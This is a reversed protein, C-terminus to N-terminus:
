PFRALPELISVQKEIAILQEYRTRPGKPREAFSSHHQVGGCRSRPPVRASLRIWDSKNKDGFEGPQIRCFTLTCVLLALGRNRSNPPM